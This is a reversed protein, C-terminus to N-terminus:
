VGGWEGDPDVLQNPFIFATAPEVGWLSGDGWRLVGASPLDASEPLKVGFTTALPHGQPVEIRPPNNEKFRHLTESLTRFRM